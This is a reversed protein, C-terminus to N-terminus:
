DLMIFLGGDAVFVVDEDGGGADLFFHHLGVVDEDELPGGRFVGWCFAFVDALGEGELGGVARRQEEGGELAPGQAGDVRVRLPSYEHRQQNLALLAGIAAKLDAVDLLNLPNRATPSLAHEPEMIGQPNRNNLIRRKLLIKRLLQLRRHILIRIRIRNQHPSM